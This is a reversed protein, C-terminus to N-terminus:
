FVPYYIKTVWKSSDPEQVRNTILSEFPIAPSSLHNDSMFIELERLAERTRSLGGTVESVLIKGPVMRKLVYTNNEPIKRNVPIAVTTHFLGSDQWVHLMPYNTEEANNAQIYAKIGSILEYVKNMSPYQGASIKTTVLITDKVLVQDIRMGYVNEPKELFNKMSELIDMMNNNLKKTVQYLHIRSVPNANTGLAYKWEVQVCDHGIPLFFIAGEIALQQHLAEIVIANYRSGTVVYKYDKYTFINRNALSDHEIHGPWWRAWKDEVLLLRNISNVNCHIKKVNTVNSVRPFFLYIASLLLLLILITFLLWKKM